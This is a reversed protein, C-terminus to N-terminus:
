AIHKEAYDWRAAGEPLVSELLQMDLAKERAPCQSVCVGCGTCDLVSVAMHFAFGKRTRAPRREIFDPAEAAERENLLRPRIAAHPCAFACRNCQICKDADWVPVMLGAGRKEHATVGVPWTGDEIGAFASVPLDDGEQRNMVDIVERVFAPRASDDRRPEDSRFLM